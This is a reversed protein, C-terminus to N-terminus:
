AREPERQHREKHAEAVVVAFADRAELLTEEAVYDCEEDGERDEHPRFSPILRCAVPMLRCVIHPLQGIVPILRCNIYLLQGAVLMLRCNIYLLQGAVLMLRCNIYLLQGAVLM